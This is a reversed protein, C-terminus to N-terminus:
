FNNSNGVKDRGNVFPLDNLNGLNTIVYQTFRSKYQAHGSIKGNLFENSINWEDAYDKTEKISEYIHRIMWGFLEEDDSAQYLQSPIQKDLEWLLTHYRLYTGYNDKLDEMGHMSRINDAATYSSGVHLIDYCCYLATNDVTEKLECYPNDICTQESIDLSAMCSSDPRWYDRVANVLDQGEKPSVCNSPEDTCEDTSSVCLGDWCQDEDDLCDGCTNNDMYLYEIPTGINILRTICEEISDNGCVEEITDIDKNYRCIKSPTHTIYTKLNQCGAVIWEFDTRIGYECYLNQENWVGNPGCMCENQSTYICDSNYECTDGDTSGGFCYGGTCAGSGTCGTYGWIQQDWNSFNWETLSERCINNTKAFNEPTITNFYGYGKNSKNHFDFNRLFNKNKMYKGPSAGGGGPVTSGFRFNSKEQEITIPTNWYDESINELTLNFRKFGELADEYINVSFDCSGDDINAWIGYNKAPFKICGYDVCNSWYENNNQIGEGPMQWQCQGSGDTQYAAICTGWSQFDGCEGPNGLIDSAPANEPQCSGVDDYSPQCDHHAILIDPLEAGGASYYGLWLPYPTEQNGPTGSMYNLNGNAMAILEESGESWM